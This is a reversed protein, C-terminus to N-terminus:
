LRCIYNISSHVPFPSDQNSERCSCSITRKKSNGMREPTSPLFPEFYRSGIICHRLTMDYFFLIRPDLITYKILIQPSATHLVTIIVSRFEHCLFSSVSENTSLTHRQGTALLLFTKGLLTAKKKLEIAKLYKFTSHSSSSELIGPVLHSSEMNMDHRANM